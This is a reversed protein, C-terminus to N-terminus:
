QVQWGAPANGATGQDLRNFVSMLWVEIKGTNSGSTKRWVLDALGDGNADRLAEITWATGPNGIAKKDLRIYGVPVGGIQVPFVLRDPIRELVDVLTVTGEPYRTESPM